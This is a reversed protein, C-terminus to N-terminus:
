GVEALIRQTLEWFHTERFATAAGPLSGHRQTHHNWHSQADVLHRRCRAATRADPLNRHQRYAVLGAILHYLARLLPECYVMSHVLPELIRRNEKCILRQLMVSDAAIREVAERKEAIVQEIVSDPLPEIM